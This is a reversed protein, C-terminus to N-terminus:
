GREYPEVLIIYENETKPFKDILKDCILDEKHLLIKSELESYITIELIKESPDTEKMFDISITDYELESSIVDHLEYIMKKMETDNNTFENIENMNKSPFKFNQNLFEKMNEQNENIKLGTYTNEQPIQMELRQHFKQLM